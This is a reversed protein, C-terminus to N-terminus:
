KIRIKSSHNHRGEHSFKIICLERPSTTLVYVTGDPAIVYPDDYFDVFMSLEWVAITDTATRLIGKTGDISFFVPEGSRTGGALTGNAKLIRGNWAPVGEVAARLLATTDGTVPSSHWKGDRFYSLFVGKETPVLRIAGRVRSISAPLPIKVWRRDYLGIFAPTDAQGTYVVGMIRGHKDATIDWFCGMGDPKYVIRKVHGEPSIVQVRRNECDDIYLKGDQGMGIATPGFPPVEFEDNIQIGFHGPSNGWTSCLITDASFSLLAAIVFAQM